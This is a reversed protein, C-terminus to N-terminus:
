SISNVYERLGMLGIWVAEETRITRSGQGPVLNVWADFAEKATEKTLGKSSLVPDSAVAPELGTVGGFVLLIHRPIPPLQGAQLKSKTKSLDPIISSLPVGRESTGISVDYGEDGKDEDVFPCGTYVASLSSEKRTTYGWYYGGIERPETPTIVEVDLNSIEDESLNPWSTPANPEAFKLTVRTGPPITIPVKVPHTLGCEVLTSGEGNASLTRSGKKKFKEISGTSAPGLTFGERYQCWEDRRMHHPMDLPPLKGAGQLNPHRPFLHQRLQGPCELYSLVHFLFQDPNDWPEANAPVAALIDAKSRRDKGGHQLRDPITAPADDFVVVEDVCFVAAARAIRAALDNKQNIDTTSSKTLLLRMMELFLEAM